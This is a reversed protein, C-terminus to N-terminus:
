LEVSLVLGVALLIGFVLQARGTKVLVPILAPGSAGGLVAMAPPNAAVV